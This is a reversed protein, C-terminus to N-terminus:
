QDHDPLVADDAISAAISETRKEYAGGQNDVSETLENEAAVFGM